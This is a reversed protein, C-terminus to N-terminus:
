RRRVFKFYQHGLIASYLCGTWRIGGDASVADILDILRPPSRAIRKGVAGIAARAERDYLPNGIISFPRRHLVELHTPIAAGLKFVVDVAPKMCLWDGTRLASGRERDLRFIRM